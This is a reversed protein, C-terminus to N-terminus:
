FCIIMERETIVRNLSIDWKEIPILEAEQAAFGLGVMCPRKATQNEYLFSFARDYFGGGTGLRHGLRDFAVLPMLVLDLESPKIQHSLNVPELISYENQHLKDDNRYRVFILNNEKDHQMVPLYCHKNSQLILEIIPLTDFEFRMPMYCAIHESNHFFDQELLLDAASKAALYRTAAPIQKRIDQFERRLEAKNQEM